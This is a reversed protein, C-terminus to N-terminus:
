KGGETIAYKLFGFKKRIIETSANYMLQNEALKVMEADRDVTNGDERVVGNPDNYIDAQVMNVQRGPSMHRPNTKKLPTDGLQLARALQREFDIAKSQYGPTEANAINSSLVTQKQSRLDLSKSLALMTNDFIRNGM